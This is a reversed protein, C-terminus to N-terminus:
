RIEKWEKSISKKFLWISITDRSWIYLLRPWGLAHARRGSHYATLSMELRTHGIKSFRRFIDDDEGVALLANFGNVKRFTEARVMQFEGTSAGISLYNNMLARIYIFFTVMIKDGFTELEKFVNLKCTIAVLENDKDFCAFAKKFFSNPEIICIDADFFVIYDGKAISAGLNRGAAITLKKGEKSHILVKDTYQRAIEVTKDKSNTDSIIIEHEGKYKSIYSLTQGIYKEENLTPIIFSIM